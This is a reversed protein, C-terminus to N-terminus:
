YSYSCKIWCSHLLRLELWTCVCLLFINEPQAAAATPFLLMVAHNLEGGGEKKKNVRLTLAGSRLCKLSSASATRQSFMRVNLGTWDWDIDEALTLASQRGRFCRARIGSALGRRIFYSPVLAGPNGMLMKLLRLCWGQVAEESVSIFGAVTDASYLSPLHPLPPPLCWLTGPLGNTTWATWQQLPQTQVATTQISCTRLLDQTETGPRRTCSAKFVHKPLIHKLYACVSIFLWSKQGSPTHNCYTLQKRLFMSYNWQLVAIMVQIVGYTIDWGPLGMCRIAVGNWSIIVCGLKMVLESDIQYVWM